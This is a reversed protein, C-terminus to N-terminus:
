LAELPNPFKYEYELVATLKNSSIIKFTGESYMDFQPPILNLKESALTYFEIRSPHAPACVNYVDGFCQKSILQEIIAVCDDQHVLNVAAHPNPLNEKGALFRGPNREYGFLGALRLITTRFSTEAQLCQEALLLAKGSIKVDFCADSEVVERNLDPYVSTASIFIVEKVKCISAIQKIREVQGPYRQEVDETRKPPIAILLLDSDFFSTNKEDLQFDENIEFCYPSIGLEKLQELKNSSTTSGKIEYGKEILYSALPLGLWGCGLVSIKKIEM